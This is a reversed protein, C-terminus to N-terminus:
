KTLIYSTTFGWFPRIESGHIETVKTDTNWELPQIEKEGQQIEVGERKQIGLTRAFVCKEAETKM